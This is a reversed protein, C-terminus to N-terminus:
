PAMSSIMAGMSFVIAIACCCILVFPAAVSVATQIGTAKHAWLIGMVLFVLAAIGGAYLGCFPIVSLAAAAQAYSYVKITMLFGQQGGGTLKLAVHMIGGWIFLAIFFGIGSLVWQFWFGPISNMSNMGQMFAEWEPPLGPPLPQQGGMALFIISQWITNFFGAAYTIIVGFLLPSGWDGDNSLLGWTAKPESFLQKITRWLAVPIGLNARDEWPFVGASPGPGQFATGPAAYPNDPGGPVPPAGAAPPPFGEPPPPAAAPASPAPPPADGAPPQPKYAQRPSQCMSCLDWKDPNENNCSSCTWPM